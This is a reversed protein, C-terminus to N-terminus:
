RSRSHPHSFALPVVCSKCTGWINKANKNTSTRIKLFRSTHHPSRINYKETHRVEDLRDAFDQAKEGQNEKALTKCVQLFDRPDTEVTRPLVLLERLLEVVETMMPRQAPDQHWCRITMDWMLDTLGFKRGGQPRAPREGYIIKSIIISTAFEGFPPRGTFAKPLLRIDPLRNM